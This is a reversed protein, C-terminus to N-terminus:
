TGISLKTMSLFLNAVRLRILAMIKSKRYFHKAWTKEGLLAVHLPGFRQQLLHRDVLLHALHVLRGADHHGHEARLLGVVQDGLALDARNEPQDVHLLDVAQLMQRHLFRAEM